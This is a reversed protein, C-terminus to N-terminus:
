ENVNRGSDIALYQNKQASHVPADHFYNFNGFRPLRAKETAAGIM